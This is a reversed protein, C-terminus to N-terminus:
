AVAKEAPQSQKEETAIRTEEAVVAAAFAKRGWLLSFFALPATITALCVMAYNLKMPDMFVYDTMVGLLVPGAGYGLTSGVLIYGAIAQGRM